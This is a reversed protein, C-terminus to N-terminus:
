AKRYYGPPGEVLVHESALTLLATMVASPSLGVAECLDDVHMPSKSAAGLLLSETENMGRHTPPEQLIEPRRGPLVEDLFADRDHLIRAGLHFITWSGEFGKEWPAAPMIWIPKGQERAHRAANLSGSRDGAQAVVVVDALAVLIRNRYPFNQPMAERGAEFPWVLSCGEREAIHGYIANDNEHKPAPYEHECGTGLVAWTRGKSFSLAGEHAARDAGLAGGSVVIAGRMACGRALDQVWAIGTDSIKRSGVIAITRTGNAEIDGSVTITEPLESEDIGGLASPFSARDLIRPIM